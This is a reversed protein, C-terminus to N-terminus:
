VIGSSSAGAKAPRQEAKAARYGSARYAGVPDLAAGSRLRAMALIPSVDTRFAQKLAQASNLVDNQQQFQALAARDVLASQVFARQVEAASNM